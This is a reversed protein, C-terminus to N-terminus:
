KSGPILNLGVNVKNSVLNNLAREKFIVSMIKYKLAACLATLQLLLVMGEDLREDLVRQRNTKYLTAM